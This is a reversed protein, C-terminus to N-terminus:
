LFQNWYNLIDKFEKTDRYKLFHPDNQFTTPIFRKGQAVAKQLYDLANVKDDLVSYYQALGYDIEGFQFNTRLSNLSEILKDAQEYNGNKYNSIALKVLVDINKPDDINLKEFLSQATKYDKIYYYSSAVNLPNSIQNASNAIVKNFYTQAKDNENALLFENGTFMYLNLLEKKSMSLEWLKFQIDLANYDGSRIYAMVIPRKLYGDEITKTIPLLEDIVQKYKKFEVDALGKMYYRFGCLLCKELVVDKMPIEKNFIDDIDEPRNVFQLALTMTTMNTTLDLYTIEYEKKQAKYAKDYKGELLSENSLLINRLRTSLISNVDIEKILSDATHFEGKNYYYTIKNIKPDFYKPDAKIAKNLYELHISDQNYNQMAILYYELAEYKPPTEESSKKGELSLYGLIRQKLEEVCDIPKSPDCDITEFSILVQNNTGDNISGQLLLKNNEKYFTGSIIKGPKFYTNLFSRSDVNSAQSKMMNTYDKVVQPSIVQALENETIGHIIWNAAIEGVFDLKDDGTNNTFVQVAIKDNSKIEEFKYGHTLNTNIILVASFSAIVSIILLASFYMKQFATKYIKNSDDSTQDAELNKLHFKWIYYVYIPFGIILFLILYTVSKEPFNLPEAILALVQLVVWSSVVYISLMKFVEKEHCEKFFGKLNM